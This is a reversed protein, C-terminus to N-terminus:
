PQVKVPRILRDIPRDHSLPPPPPSSLLPSLLPPPSPLPSFVVYWVIAALALAVGVQDRYVWVSEPLAVGVRSQATHSLSMRRLSPTSPKIDLPSKM